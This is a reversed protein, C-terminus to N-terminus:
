GESSQPNSATRPPASSREVEARVRRLTVDQSFPESRQRPTVRVEERLVLQKVLIEEVIPYVLTDGEMRLSPITEVVRGIQVRDIEVETRLLTEEIHEVHEETHTTLRVRRTEIQRKALTLDEQVLAIPQDPSGQDESM